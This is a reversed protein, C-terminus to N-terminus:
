PFLTVRDIIPFDGTELVLYYVGPPFRDTDLALEQVGELGIGSWITEVLRGSIDYLRLAGPVPGVAKFRVTASGRYCAVDLFTSGGPGSGEFTPVLELLSVGLPPMGGMDLVLYREDEEGTRDGRSSIAVPAYSAFPEFGAMTRVQYDLSFRGPFSIGRGSPVHTGSENTAMVLITGDQLSELALFNLLTDEPAPTCVPGSIICNWACDGDLATYTTDVTASLFDPGGGPLNGTLMAIAEHIRGPMDVDVQDRSPGWNQLLAPYRLTGGEGIGGSQLALDMAYFVLGRCGKVVPETALFLITDVSASYFPLGFAHRGFAQVNAFLTNPRRTQEVGLEMAVEFSQSYWEFRIMDYTDWYLEAGPLCLDEDALLLGARINRRTDMVRPGALVQQGSAGYVSVMELRGSNESDTMTSWSRMVMETTACLLVDGYKKDPRYADVSVLSGQLGEIPTVRVNELRASIDDSRARTMTPGNEDSVSSVHDTGPFYPQTFQDEHSVFVSLPREKGGFLGQFYPIDEPTICWGLPSRRCTVYRGDLDYIVFGGDVVRSGPLEPVEEGWFRGWLIGNPELGRLELPSPTELVFGGPTRSFINLGLGGSSLRYCGMILTMGRGLIGPSTGEPPYSSGGDGVMFLLARAGNSGPFEPLQLTRLAGNEPVIVVEDGAPAHDDWLVIAGNIEHSGTTRDGVDCARFDSSAMRDPTFPLELSHAPMLQMMEFGPTYEFEFVDLRCGQPDRSVTFLEDRDCFAEYYVDDSPLLDTSGMHLVSDQNMPILCTRRDNNTVPYSNFIVTDLFRSFRNLVSTTDSYYVWEGGSFRGCKSIFTSFPLGTKDRSLTSYRYMMSIWDWATEPNELFKVEPEDFGFIGIVDGHYSGATGNVYGDLFRLVAMNHDEAYPTTWFGGVIVNLGIERASNAAVEFTSPYSGYEGPLVVHTLEGRIMATNFGSAMAVELLDTVPDWGSELEYDILYSRYYEGASRVDWIVPFLTVVEQQGPPVFSYNVGHVTSMNESDAAPAMSMLVCLLIGRSIESRRPIRRTM